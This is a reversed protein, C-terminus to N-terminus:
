QGGAWRLPAVTEALAEYAGPKAAAPLAVILHGAGATIARELETRITEPGGTVYQAPDRAGLRAAADSDDDGLIVQGAWSIEFPREGAIARVRAADEVFADLNAGWGNWGGALRGALELLEASRGGLWVSPAVPLVPSTPLDSVSVFHEDLTVAKEQFFRQMLTVTAVLQEMRETGTYYPAGFSDNEGENLHDGSGLGISLRGPAIAAVTAAAKALLVPHRLSARTVLSGIGVETTAEALFALTSWCELIPREREGSLPWLHDFVWLSDFGLDVARRAGDLFTARADSFQPLTVGIRVTM